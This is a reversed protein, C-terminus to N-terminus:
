GQAEHCIMPSPASPAASSTGNTNTSRRAASGTSGSRSKLTRVNASQETIPNTTPKAMNPEIVYRGVKRWTTCPTEGVMDPTCMSGITIPM